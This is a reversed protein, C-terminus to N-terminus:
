IIREGHKKRNRHNEQIREVEEFYKIIIDRRLTDVKRKHREEEMALEAREEKGAERIARVEEENVSSPLDNGRMWAGSDVLKQYQKQKHAELARKHSEEFKTGVFAVGALIGLIGAAGIIPRLVRWNIGQSSSQLESKSPRTPRTQNKYEHLSPIELPTATVLQVAALLLPVLLFKQYLM